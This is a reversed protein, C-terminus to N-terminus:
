RGSSELFRYFEGDTSLILWTEPDVTAAFTEMTKLFEYFRRAEASQNYARAYIDAAEADARGRIQEAERYAESQIQQLDREMNGLIEARQGQGQSRFRDSIRVRESIMRNYVDMLVQEGYNIRKFQIDLIEIGLDVSATLNKASALIERRINERGTDIADLQGEDPEFAAEDSVPTRNSTRIVELLEHKAIASRTASNLIDDLRSQAGREGGPNRQYFLLPDSIRWRAYADVQIFVKDKTPLEAVDGAWELFRKDFRHVKQILPLKFKLGPTTIPEGVPEGFQTIIAQEWESIVFLAGSLVMLVVLAVAAIVARTM